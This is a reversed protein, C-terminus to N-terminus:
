PIELRNNNTCTVAIANNSGPNWTLTFFELTEKRTLFYLALRLFM